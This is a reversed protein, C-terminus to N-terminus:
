EELGKWLFDSLGRTRTLEGNEAIQYEVNRKINIFGFLKAQKLGEAKLSGDSGTQVELNELKNLRERQQTQIREMVQEIVQQTEENRIRIVANELGPVRSQLQEMVENAEVVKNKTEQPSAFVFSMSLMLILISTITKKM